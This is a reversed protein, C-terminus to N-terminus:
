RKDIFKPMTDVGRCNPCWSKENYYGGYRLPAGCRHCRGDMRITEFFLGVMLSFFVIIIFLGIM